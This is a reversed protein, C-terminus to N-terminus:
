IINDQDDMLDKSNSSIPSVNRDSRINQEFDRYNVTESASTSIKMKEENKREEGSQNSGSNSNTRKRM